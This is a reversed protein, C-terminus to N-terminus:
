YPECSAVILPFEAHLSLQSPLVHKIGIHWYNHQYTATIEAYWLRVFACVTALHLHLNPIAAAM